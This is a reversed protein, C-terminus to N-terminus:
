GIDQNNMGAWGGDFDPGFLPGVWPNDPDPPLVPDIWPGDPDDPEDQDGATGYVDVHYITDASPYGGSYYVTASDGYTVNGYSSVLSFPVTVYSGNDLNFGSGSMTAGVFTAGIQGYGPDPPDYSGQIYCSYINDRSPYDRYYVTAACGYDLNGDIQCIDKLLQVTDGNDLAITVTSMMADTVVGDMQGYAPQRASINFYATTSRATQGNGYFTCYAGWRSMSVETNSISVNPSDGGSVSSNPFRNNFSQWSCESGYPDVFTWTATSWNEANAVFWATEGETHYEDTPNKTILLFTSYTDPKPTKVDTAEPKPPQKLGIFVAYSDAFRGANAADAALFWDFYTSSRDMHGFIASGVSNYEEPTIINNQRDTFTTVMRENIWENHQYAYTFYQLETDVLAIASKNAYVEKTSVTVQDNFMYYWYGTDADHFTDAADIIIDPFSGGQPVKVTLEEIGTRDAKVRWARATTFRGEGQIAAALFELRGDHDLDTVAYSWRSDTDDQRLSGFQSFILQIQEDAGEPIQVAPTEAPAPAAPAPSAAAEDAFAAGGCACGLAMVLALFLATLKKM